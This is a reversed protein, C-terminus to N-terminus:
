HWDRPGRGAAYILDRITMYVIRDDYHNVATDDINDPSRTAGYFPGTASLNYTEALNLGNPSGMRVTNGLYAGKGSEGHSILVIGVQSVQVGNDYVTFGPRLGINLFAGESTRSGSNASLGSRCLSNGGSVGGGPASSDCQTMDAFGAGATPGTLGTTGYYVRYSIKRGWGDFSDAQPLNLTNWPVVGVRRTTACSGSGPFNGNGSDAAAGNVGCPLKGNQAVYVVVARRIRELRDTTLKERAGVGFQVANLNSLAISGVISALIAALVILFM